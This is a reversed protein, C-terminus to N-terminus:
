SVLVESCRQQNTDEGQRTLGDEWCDCRPRISDHPDEPPASPSGRPVLRETTDPHFPGGFSALTRSTAVWHSCGGSKMNAENHKVQVPFSTVQRPLFYRRCHKRSQPLLKRTASTIWVLSSSCGERVGRALKFEYTEQIQEHPTSMTDQHFTRREITM